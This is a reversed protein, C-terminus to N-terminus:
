FYRDLLDEARKIMHLIEASREKTRESEQVRLKEYVGQNVSLEKKLNNSDIGIGFATTVSETGDTMLESTITM